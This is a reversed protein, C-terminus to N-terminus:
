PEIAVRYFRRPLVAAGTDIIQTSATNLAAVVQDELLTWSSQTLDDKTEIRYTKGPVSAFTLALDNASRAIAIVRLKSSALHPDTGARFEGLNTLGDGDADLAADNVSADLMHTSEYNDPMGDGDSDLTTVIQTTSFQSTNGNSDTATATIVYGAPVAAALQVVPFTANGGADTAVNMAGIFNRGEDTGGPSAFFEIQFNASPNSALTGSVDTGNPNSATSLTAGALAPAVQNNNSNTYVGIGRPNNSFISNQSITNKNTTADFLGVGEAANGAILNSAGITSGGIVNSQAGGFLAVGQAGNAVIAGAIDLGITNGQVVNDNTGSGGVSIGSATNGSIFNRAGGTTGGITNTHAAGFISIGSNNGLSALGTADLGIYNGQISNLTTGSDAISLGAGTNGSIVNRAGPLIGGITNSPSNNFFAIGAAHNPKATAGSFNTGIYNGQISTNSVGNLDIGEGTNGSIVNRATAITGGIMTLQSGNTLYIGAQSNGRETGGAPDLGIYNGQVLTGNAGNIIIGSATNGSIVNRANTVTGGIVTAQPGTAVEVGSGANALTASGDAKLGIVNGQVLNSNTGSGSITVGSIANGSIVNGAGVSTGGVTNSIAAAYIQVGRNQNAVASTGAANTGIYNGRIVNNKTGAATTDYFDDILVGSDANGSIVNRASSTLGGITNNQAGGAIEVGSFTNAQATVGDSALGIYNGAIVNSQTGADLIYIGRQTNGSIVNRAVNTLGGIVNNQAGGQLVIGSGTQNSIALAKVVCNTETLRLGDNLIGTQSGLTGDIMVIPTGAVYGPQTSGDITTSAGLRTMQDSPQIGYFNGIHGPDGSPINFTITTGPHDFAYYIAARLSGLGGDRTNTAISSNPTPNAGYVVAMNSRDLSSLPRDFQKGIVDLYQPLLPVITDRKSPDPDNPSASFQNRAYHMVSYYDYTASNLTGPLLTFNGETGPIVNQLQISVYSDRDSRQHEHVLGLVHGVEHCLTGRNWSFSGILIYQQGGAMGVGSSFGGSMTAGGDRVLLYNAAVGDWPVFHLNAFTEWEHAADVFARQHVATVPTSGTTEFAYPVTGSTWTQLGSRFASQPQPGPQSQTALRDRWERLVSVKFGVDGVAVTEQGPTVGALVRDLVAVDWNTESPAGACLAVTAVLFLPTRWGRRKKSFRSRM